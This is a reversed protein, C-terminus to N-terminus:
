RKLKKLDEAALKKGGAKPYPITDNSTQNYRLQFKLTTWPNTNWTHENEIGGGGGGTAM